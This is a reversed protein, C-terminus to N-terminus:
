AATTARDTQSVRGHRHGEIGGHDRHCPRPIAGEAQDHRPALVEVSGGKGPLALRLVLDRSRIRYVGADRRLGLRKAWSADVIIWHNSVRAARRGGDNSGRIERHLLGGDTRADDIGTLQTTTELKNMGHERRLAETQTPTGMSTM